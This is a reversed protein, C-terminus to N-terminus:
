AARAQERLLARVLAVGAPDSSGILRALAAREREGPQDAPVPARARALERDLAAEGVGLLSAVDALPWDLVDRLILVTWGSAPLHGPPPLESEM